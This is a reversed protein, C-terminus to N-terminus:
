ESNSMYRSQSCITGMLLLGFPFRNSLHGTVHLLCQFFYFDFSPIGKGCFWWVWMCVRERESYFYYYQLLLLLLSFYVIWYPAKSCSRISGGDNGSHLIIFFYIYYYHYSIIMLIIIIIFRCELFRLKQIPLLLREFISEHIFIFGYIFINEGRLNKQLFIGIVGRSEQDIVYFGGWLQM